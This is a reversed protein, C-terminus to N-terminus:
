GDRDEWGVHRSRDHPWAMFWTVLACYLGALLSLGIVSWALLRM